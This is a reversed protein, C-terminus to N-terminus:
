YPGTNSISLISSSKAIVFDAYENTYSLSLEINGGSIDGGDVSYDTLYNREGLDWIFYNSGASAAIKIQRTKPAEPVNVGYNNAPFMTRTVGTFNCNVAAPTTIIRYKNIDAYVDYGNWKGVDMLDAYSIDISIDISQIGNVSKGNVSLPSNTIYAENAETPLVSLIIDKRKVTEASHTSGTQPAGNGPNGTSYEVQRSVLTISEEIRGGVSLNYSINTILCAKYHAYILSGDALNSQNDEGYAIYIDYNRLDADGQFGLNNPAFIHSNAYTSSYQCSFFTSSSKDLLRNITITFEKNRGEYKFKNQFRGADPLNNHQISSDVGISQVGTLFSATGSPVAGQGYRVYVGQCAYFIRDNSM